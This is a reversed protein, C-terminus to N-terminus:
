VRRQHFSLAHAHLTIVPGRTRSGRPVRVLPVTRARGGRRRTSLGRPVPNVDVGTDSRAALYAYFGSVSSLWRAITRSSLGSERDEMRVVTRDGRQQALFDFVDTSSVEVPGKAVITFFTKLDHTVAYLTNPRARGAVFALYSDVLPDGLAFRVEGGASTSRVLCPFDSM